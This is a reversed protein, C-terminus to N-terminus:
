FNVVLLGGTLHACYSSINSTGTYKCIISLKVTATARGKENEVVCTYNGADKRSLFKIELQRRCSSFSHKDKEEVLAKGNFLWTVSALLNSFVTCKFSTQHDLYGTKASGDLKARPPGKLASSKTSAPITGNVCDGTSRRYRKSSLYATFYYNM